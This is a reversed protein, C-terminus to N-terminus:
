LFDWFLLFALGLSFYGSWKNTDKVYYTFAPDNIKQSFGIRNTNM